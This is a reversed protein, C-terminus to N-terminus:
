NKSEKIITLSSQPKTVKMTSKILENLRLILNQMEEGGWFRNQTEIWELSSRLRAILEKRIETLTLCSVTAESKEQWLAEFAQHAEKMYKVHSTAQMTNIYTKARDQEMSDMLASLRSSEIKYRKSHLGSDHKKIEELVYRAAEAVKTNNSFSCSTAYYRFSLFANDCNSDLLALKAAFPDTRDKKLSAELKSLSESISSILPALNRTKSNVNKIIDLKQQGYTFLEENSLLQYNISETM